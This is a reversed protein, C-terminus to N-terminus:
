TRPKSAGYLEAHSKCTVATIKKTATNYTIYPQPIQESEVGFSHVAYIDVSTGEQKFVTYSMVDPYTDRCFLSAVTTKNVAKLDDSLLDTIPETSKEDISQEYATHVANIAATKTEYATTDAPLTYVATENQPCYGTKDTTCSTVRVYDRGNHLAFDYAMRIETPLKHVVRVVSQKDVSPISASPPNPNSFLVRVADGVSLDKWALQEGQMTTVQVDPAITTFLRNQTMSYDPKDSGGYAEDSSVAISTPTISTITAVTYTSHLYTGDATKSSFNKYQSLYCNGQVMATVQENTLASDQKIKYYYVDPADTEKQEARDWDKMTSCDVRKIAVIRTHDDLVRESVFLANLFPMAGLAYASTGIGLLAVLAIAALAPKPVVLLRQWFTPQREPAPEPLKAIVEKTFSERVPITFSSASEQLLNDINKM